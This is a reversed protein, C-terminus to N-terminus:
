FMVFILSLALASIIGWILYNVKSINFTTMKNEEVQEFGKDFYKLFHYTVMFIINFVFAIILSQINETLYFIGSVFEFSIILGMTTLSSLYISQLRITEIRKNENKETSFNILTLSLIILWNILWIPVLSFFGAKQIGFLILSLALIIIGFIKLKYDGLRFFVIGKNM